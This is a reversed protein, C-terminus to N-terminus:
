VTLVVASGPLFPSRMDDAVLDGGLYGAVLQAVRAFRRIAGAKIRQDRGQNLRGVPEGEGHEALLHCGLVCDLLRGKLRPVLERAEPVFATPKPRPVQRDDRVLTARKLPPPPPRDESEILDSWRM